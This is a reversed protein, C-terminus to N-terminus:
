APAGAAARSKANVQQCAKVVTADQVRMANLEVVSVSDAFACIAAVDIVPGITSRAAKNEPTNWDIPPVRDTVCWGGGSCLTYRTVGNEDVRTSRTPQLANIAAERAVVTEHESAVRWAYSLGGVGVIALAVASSTLAEIGYARM